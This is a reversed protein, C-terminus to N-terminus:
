LSLVASLFCFVLMLGIVAVGALVGVIVGVSSRGATPAHYYQPPPQGLHPMVHPSGYTPAVGPGPGPVPGRPPTRPPAPRPLPPAFGQDADDWLSPAPEPEPAQRWRDYERRLVEDLLIAAAANILKSDDDAAVGSDPHATRQRERRARSVEQRTATPAVGLVEYADRGDLDRFRGTM